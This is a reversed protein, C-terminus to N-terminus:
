PKKRLSQSEKTRTLRWLLGLAVLVIAVPVYAVLGSRSSWTQARWWDQPWQWLPRSNEEGSPTVSLRYRGPERDANYVALYYTGAVPLSISARLREAVTLFVRRDFVNTGLGLPYVSAITAPPQAMPLGPGATVLDPQYVVVQPHFRREAWRPVDLVVEVAQSKTVAMSYFRVDGTGSLVEYRMESHQVFDLSEAQQWTTNAHRTRPINLGVALGSVVVAGATVLLVARRTM